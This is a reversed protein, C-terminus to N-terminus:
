PTAPLLVSLAGREYAGRTGGGPLVVAVRPPNALAPDAGNREVMPRWFPNWRRRAADM